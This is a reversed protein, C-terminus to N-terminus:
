HGLVFRLHVLGFCQLHKHNRKKSRHRGKSGRSRDYPGPDAGYRQRPTKSPSQELIRAKESRDFAVFRGKEEVQDFISRQWTVCRMLAEGWGHRPFTPTKNSSSRLINAKGLM